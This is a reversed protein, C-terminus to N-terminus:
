LVYGVGVLQAEFQGTFGDQLLMHPVIPYVLVPSQQSHGHEFDLFLFLPLPLSMTTLSICIGITPKNRQM